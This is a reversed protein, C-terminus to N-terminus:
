QRLSGAAGIRGTRLKAESATNGPISVWPTVPLLPNNTRWRARWHYVGAAQHVAVGLPLAFPGLAEFEALENFVLPSGTVSQEASSDIANASYPSGLPVVQWELRVKPAIPTAWDFGALASEFRANLRFRTKDSSRGLLAIPAADNARRQRLARTWGGRGDNGM